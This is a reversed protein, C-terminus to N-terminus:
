VITEIVIIENSIIKQPFNNLIGVCVNSQTKKGLCNITLKDFSHDTSDQHRVDCRRELNPSRLLNLLTIGNEYM